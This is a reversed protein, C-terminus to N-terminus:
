DGPRLPPCATEYGPPANNWYTNMSGLRPGIFWSAVPQDIWVNESLSFPVTDGPRLVIMDEVPSGDTRSTEFKGSTLMTVLEGRANLALLDPPDDRFILVDDSYDNVLVGRYTVDFFGEAGDSTSTVEGNKVRLYGTPCTVQRPGAAQPAAQEQPPSPTPTDVPRPQVPARHAPPTEETASPSASASPQPEAAPSIATPGAAQTVEAAAETRPGSMAIATVVILATLLVAGIAALAISLKKADM